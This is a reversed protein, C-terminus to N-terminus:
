NIISANHLSLYQTWKAWYFDHWGQRLGQAMSVPVEAYTLYLHTDDNEEVLRLVVISDDADPPWNETRWAQVVLKDLELHLNEGFCFGDYLNFPEGLKDTIM